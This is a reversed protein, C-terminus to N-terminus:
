KRCEECEEGLTCIRDFIEQSIRSYEGPKDPDYGFEAFPIPKGIVIVTRRFFGPRYDKRYIHIPLIAADTHAAIMAAGNKVKTDRPNEGPHRTGQPFIGACYGHNLLDIAHRIAGVDSIKRDVPYAGFHRILWSLGPVSFLEKKAMICLQHKRLVSSIVVPDAASIHNACVLFGGEEPENEAGIVKVRFLFRIVPAFIPYIVRFFKNRLDKKKGLTRNVILLAREISQELTYPSTDLLISDVAPVAPAIDRNKDQEDRARMDALIGELTVDMGKEKLEAFRRQARCEDSATLFIKVDADPLIVTGIDRGDMVVSNAKAISRQTDLLFERVEPIKSVASAYKSIEPVRIKDGLNEGNLYVCQTGNEYKVEIHIQPLLAIVAAADAPDAGTSRVFYGVTRYLAGTDVYVIGMKAAIAKAITSKGAGSPGDIAIQFM